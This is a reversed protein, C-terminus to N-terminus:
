KSEVTNSHKNEQAIKASYRYTYDCVGTRNYQCSIFQEHYSNEEESSTRSWDSPFVDNTSSLYANVEGLVTDMFVQDRYKSTNAIGTKTIGQQQLREGFESACGGMKEL